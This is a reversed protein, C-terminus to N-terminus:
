YALDALSYLLWHISLKELMCSGCRVHVCYGDCVMFIDYIIRIIWLKQLTYCQLIFYKIYLM